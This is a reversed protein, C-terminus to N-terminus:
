SMRKDGHKKEKIKLWDNCDIIKYFPWLKYKLWDHREKPTRWVITATFDKVPCM